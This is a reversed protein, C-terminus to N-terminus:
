ELRGFMIREKRSGSTDGQTVTLYIGVALVLLITATINRNM